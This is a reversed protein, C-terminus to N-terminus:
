AGWSIVGVRASLGSTVRWLGVAWGAELEVGQRSRPVLRVPAEKIRMELLGLAPKAVSQANGAGDCLALWPIPQRGIVFADQNLSQATRGAAAVARLM